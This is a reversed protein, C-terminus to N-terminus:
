RSVIFPYVTWDRVYLESWISLEEELTANYTTAPVHEGLLSLFM